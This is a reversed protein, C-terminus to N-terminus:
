PGSEHKGAQGAGISSELDELAVGFIAMSPPRCLNGSELGTGGGHIDTRPGADHDHSTECRAGIWVQEVLNTWPSEM